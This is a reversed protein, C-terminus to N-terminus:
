FKYNFTANVGNERIGSGYQGVYSLGATAVPSIQFDLGTEILATNKAIAIGDVTFVGGAISQTAVPTIDGYAHRWGLTGKLNASASGITFPVATRVGFTSFTTNTTNSAVELAADGGTESYGKTRLNVHSLNVFPEITAPALDIQYGVDAFVQTSHAHYDSNLMENTNGYNVARKGDLSSGTYVVGARFGLPGWQNGGYAGLHWNDSTTSAYHGKADMDTKSYGTAIGLNWGSSLGIDVGTLFGGTSTKLGNANANGKQDIWSGFGSAWFGTNISKNAPVFHLVATQKSGVGDFTSRLRNNITDATINATSVLGTRISANTNGALEEFAQQAEEASLQLIKNTVNPPTPKQDLANAIAAQNTSTTVSAFTTDNRNIKVDVSNTNNYDVSVDLFASPKSLTVSEFENNVTSKSNEYQIITYPSNLKFNDLTSVIVKGGLEIDGGTVKIMDSGGQYNVEVNYTSSDNLTLGNGVTVQGISNGINLIGSNTLKGGIKWNGGFISSADNINM